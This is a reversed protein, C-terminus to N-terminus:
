TVPTNYPNYPYLIVRLIHHKQSLQDDLHMVTSAKIEQISGTCDKYIKELFEQYVYNFEVDSTKSMENKVKEMYRKADEYREFGGKKIKKSNGMTDKYRFEVKFWFYKGNSKNKTKLEYKKIGPTKTTWEKTM